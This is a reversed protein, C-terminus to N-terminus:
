SLASEARPTRTLALLASNLSCKGFQGIVGRVSDGCTSPMVSAPLSSSPRGSVHPISAIEDSGHGRHPFRFDGTKPIKTIRVLLSRPCKAVGRGKFCDSSISSRGRVIHTPV